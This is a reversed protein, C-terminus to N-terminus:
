VIIYWDKDINLGVCEVNIFSVDYVGDGWLGFGDDGNVIGVYGVFYVCDYFDGCM